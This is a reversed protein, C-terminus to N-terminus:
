NPWEMEFPYPKEDSHLSLYDIVQSIYKGLSHGFSSLKPNKEGKFLFILFNFSMVVYVIPETLTFIFIFILMYLFRKWTSYSKINDIVDGKKDNEELHDLPQQEETM